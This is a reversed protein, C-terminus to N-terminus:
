VYGAGGVGGVLRRTLQGGQMTLERLAEEVHRDGVALPAATDKADEAAFLAAERLLERIFAASAGDARAVIREINSATLELGEGYINVLQRRCTSDPLPLEVALDVRGPRSTLAPELVQPRNTTLLFIVDCDDELGDMQNLLEFLIPNSSQGPRGRDETVLDVDEVIVISPALQRAMAGARKVLGQTRGVLLLVTRGPM